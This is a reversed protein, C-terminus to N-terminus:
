AGMAELEMAIYRRYDGWTWRRGCSACYVTERGDDRRLTEMGCGSCSGPLRHILTTAGLIARCRGHLRRLAGIGDIGTYAVPGTDWGDQFGWLPGLTSMLAVRPAIVACATAVAWGQRVGRTRERPLGAAERIPPEWVTLTHAIARQLADVGLDIPTPPERHGSVRTSLGGGGAALCGELDAYDRVLAAIDRGALRLCDDCLRANLAAPAPQEAARDWGACREGAACASM